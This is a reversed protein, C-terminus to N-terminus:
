AQEYEWDFRTFSDEKVVTLVQAVRPILEDRHSILLINKNRDRTMKKLVELAKELGSADLGADLLEDVAMFSIPVSMNEFIDRFAWSLSLIVRTREGRSLQEFDFEQGMHQIEVGLDNSFIVQHPLNLSTLYESLRRNLYALNQDIIRKRIFSDKNVLLKLLFEQHDRLSSLLNLEDYSVEQLTNSLSGVQDQYPNAETTVRELEKELQVLSNRHDYAQDITKYFTDAPTLQDFLPQVEDVEGKLYQTEAELEQISTDLKTIKVELEDLMTTQRDDHVTQGCMACNHDQVQSYQTLLHTQQTKLQNLHNSKTSLQNKLNKLTVQVERYASNNKHTQIEEDVDLHALQQISSELDEISQVHTQDWRQIKTELDQIARLVRENSNKVTAQRFEEQEIKVKTAKILEKLNDAKQSLLTIGLLEEIIERQRGGGMSLFPETYTNLAVIQKFMTHSLGLVRDIERQTEKSEGQSEDTNAENVHQDDVIYKFFNPRRGREIRYRSGNKEFEVTVVMNKKNIGNILNDRRINTIALGYLGYSIAQILSSNHSVIGNAYFEHVDAVQLDYLDEKFSLQKVSTITSWGDITQIEMSQNIQNLPTWGLNKVMIRHDPSGEISHCSETCVQIIDSDFATVDAYEITKPGYQTNVELKGIYEPYQNYFEVVDIINCDIM